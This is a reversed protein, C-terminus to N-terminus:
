MVNLCFELGYYHICLSAEITRLEFEKVHTGDTCCM